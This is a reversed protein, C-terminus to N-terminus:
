PDAGFTTRCSKVRARKQLHIFGRALSNGRDHRWLLAHRHHRGLLAAHIFCAHLGDRGPFILFVDRPGDQFSAFQQILRQFAGVAITGPGSAIVLILQDM